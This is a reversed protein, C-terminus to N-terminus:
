LRFWLNASLSFFSQLCKTFCLGSTLLPPWLSSMVHQEIVQSFLKVITQVTIIAISIFEKLKTWWIDISHWFPIDILMYQAHHFNLTLSFFNCIKWLCQNIEKNHSLDCSCSYLLLYCSSIDLISSSSFLPILTVTNQFYM